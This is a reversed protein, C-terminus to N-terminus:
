FLKIPIAVKTVDVGGIVVRIVVNYDGVPLNSTKLTATFTNTKKNYKVSVIPQGDFSVRINPLVNAAAKDSLLGNADQLQFSVPINVKRKFNSGAKPLVNVARYGVVYPVSVSADNGALDTASCLVQKGGPSTTDVLGGSQSAIGVDDTANPSVTVGKANVLIPSASFTPNLQPAMTDLTFAFRSAEGLNGAVDTQRVLVNNVGEAPAFDATWTAGDDVSYEVGAAAEVNSLELTGLKTILDTASIGTDQALAVDPSAPATTDLTFSFPTFDGVNGAADTQRVFV